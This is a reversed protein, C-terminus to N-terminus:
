NFKVGNNIIGIFLPIIYIYCHWIKYPIRLYTNCNALSFWHWNPMMETLSVMIWNRTYVHWNPNDSYNTRHLWNHNVTCQKPWTIRSRLDVTATNVLHWTIVYPIYPHKLIDNSLIYVNMCSLHLIMCFSYLHFLTSRSYTM